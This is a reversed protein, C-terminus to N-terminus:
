LGGGDSFIMVFDLAYYGGRMAFEEPMVTSWAMDGGIPGHAADIHLVTERCKVIEHDHGARRCAEATYHHADFHFPRNSQIFIKSGEKNSLSLYGTDEHGGNESPPSFAFHLADVTSTYLGLKACAKRDPYNESEGRGFYEVHEFGEPATLEIGARQLHKKYCTANIHYSVYVVGSGDIKYQVGGTIREDTKTKFVPFTDIIVTKNDSAILAGTSNYTVTNEKHILAFEDYFGWGPGADLGSRPRDIRLDGCNVLYDRGNKTMKVIVPSTQEGASKKFIYEFDKGKVIYNKDDEELSLYDDLRCAAPVCPGCPVASKSRFDFQRSSVENGHADFIDLDIHFHGGATEYEYPIFIDMERQSLPPTNELPIEASKVIKGNHRLNAACKYGSLDKTTFKNKLIYSNEGGAKEFYVPAYIQRIEYAVPKWTLDPMVVGNNTMFRPAQYETMSEGFDGGYGFYTNGNKDKTEISKDKWDWIYGGQFRAYTETLKLFKDMGGGANCIQYLYEVLIVPRDDYPDALMKIIHDINAYMNGRIDSINKGPEGAEYQCLRTPDFEKIYGYMAAHNAGTGSENGLSWSYICAHNKYNQVMRVAREVFIPAYEHNHTLMGAVAHTELNCECVILIGYEDCLEYWEPMDPYHCTRVSNINMLKMQRIEETMHEFSVARGTKCDHEHRNVGHIVLRRGNLLVIGNKIEVSKFGFRCTEVDLVEGEPSLLVFVARYLVPSEPSWLRVEPLDINIRATNATPRRDTRYYAERMPKDTGAALEAGNEGFIYAEIKCDAFGDKRSITVDASFKGGGLEAPLNPIAKIFYDKICMKPKAILWVSRYIGSIHWYDQDELYISDSFRMIQLTLYNEGAVLFGTIDFECPLKSDESYGVPKGNVWLYFANEAGDFRIYIDRGNFNEPIEFRRRYCGTPNESPIFPPNPASHKGKEPYIVCMEGLDPKWPMPVNTYIPEGFGQLEWNGPVNIKDKFGSYGPSFFDDKAAEEPNKYLKFDYEGDLCKIYPSVGSLASDKSDRSDWRVHAASRNVSTVSINQWDPKTHFNQRENM